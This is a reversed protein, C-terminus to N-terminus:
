YIGGFCLAKPYYKELYEWQVIFVDAIKYVFQGTKTPTKIKAFSEIFIIKKGFFKGIIIIPLCCLAGTSIIHSPKEKIFFFISLIVDLIFPFIWFISTRNIQVLFHNIDKNKHNYKTKETIVITSYNKKILDLKMLQEFHGGSSSILCIKKKEKRKM